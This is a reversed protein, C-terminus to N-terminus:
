CCTGPAAPLLCEAPNIRGVEDFLKLEPEDGTIEATLFEGTSIDTYALGFGREGRCVALLYNQKADSLLSSELVTGPTVIRIVDRKVIGKAAKPDEMQECIAVKYGKSILKALYGDVAHFPVGCM